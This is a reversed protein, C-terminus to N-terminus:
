RYSHHINRSVAHVGKQSRRHLSKRRKCDVGRYAFLFITYDFCMRMLGPSANFCALFNSSARLDAAELAENMQIVPNEGNFLSKSRRVDADSNVVHIVTITHRVFRSSAMGFLDRFKQLVDIIAQSSIIKPIGALEQVLIAFEGKDDVTNRPTKKGMFSQAERIAKLWDTREAENDCM